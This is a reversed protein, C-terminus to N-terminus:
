SCGHIRELHIGILVAASGSLSCALSCRDLVLGLDFEAELKVLLRGHFWLGVNLAIM